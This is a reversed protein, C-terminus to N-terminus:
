KSKLRAVFQAALLENIIEILSETQWVCVYFVCGNM